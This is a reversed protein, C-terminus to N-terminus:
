LPCNSSGYESQIEAKKENRTVNWHNWLTRQKCLTTLFCFGTFRIFYAIYYAVFLIFPFGLFLGFFVLSLALFLPSLLCEPSSLASISVKSNNENRLHYFWPDPGNAQGLHGPLLCKDFGTEAAKGVTELWVKWLNKEITKRIYIVMTGFKDIRTLNQSISFPSFSLSYLWM